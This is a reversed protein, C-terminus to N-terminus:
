AEGLQDWIQQISSALTMPNFPKPIVAKVGMNLYKEQEHPQAKATVFIVPVDALAPLEKLKMMTTPGDMKPMMVDLLILDPAFGPADELAQMGNDCSHVKFGGVNALAIQAIMSIDLDDEVLLIRELPKSVRYSGLM